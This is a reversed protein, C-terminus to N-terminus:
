RHDPDAGASHEGAFPHFLDIETAHSSAVVSSEVIVLIGALM